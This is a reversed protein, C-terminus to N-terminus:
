REEDKKGNKATKQGKKAQISPNNTQSSIKSTTFFISM